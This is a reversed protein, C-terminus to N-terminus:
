SPLVGRVPSPSLNAEGREKAYPKPSQRMM